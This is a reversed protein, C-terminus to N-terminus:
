FNNHGYDRGDDYFFSIPDNDQDLPKAMLRQHSAEAQLLHQQTLAHNLQSSAIAEDLRHFQSAKYEIIETQGIVYAEILSNLVSSMTVRNAECM